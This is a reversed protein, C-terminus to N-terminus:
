GLRVGAQRNKKATAGMANNMGTAQSDDLMSQAERRKEDEIKKLRKETKQKGSGKGHFDHSLMKFAEKANLDRGFEDHYKIQVDPKYERNFADALKRSEEQDRQKNFQRAYEERERASMRDFKGSSRDRERQLRAKVEGETERRQKEALFRQRERFLATADGSDAGKVLGRQKLMALTSGMGADLTVEEDLGTATRDPTATSRERKIRALLEEEDEVGNYAQEMNVDGDTEEEGEEEPSPPREQEPQEVSPQVSPRSKREPISPKQLNSVFESTEDIILGPEEEAGDGGDVEMEPTASAEERLQRALDEPRQRRRKKFAAIRQATLSAQLDEDDVFSSEIPKPASKKPQVVPEVDMADGGNTTTGNAGAQPFINEDEDADRRRTSKKKPKKAKKIKIESIDMYDSKPEERLIDLSIPQARLREGVEQRKAEREEQTAGMGDLTFRKRKKGDIEEDYQALIRKEGSEDTANPDYVPKRKKLKLREELKEQEKLALNELEDGEEENEDITTDKLTLVQEGEQDEFEGVEHAVRVGALDKSGYEIQALREREALEEEMKRAREKELKKQRKKQGLLWSKTDLEGDKEDADGLGKGELKVNKQAADKAKKIAALREERAKKAKEAERLQQWNGYGAAERTELTSAPGEDDSDESSSHDKFTPGTAPAGPVPLPKLGIAARIKNTEEISIADAM